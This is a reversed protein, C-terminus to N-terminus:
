NLIKVIIQAMDGRIYGKDGNVDIQYWTYGLTDKISSTVLFTEDEYVTLIIDGYPADRVYAKIAVVKIHMNKFIESNDFNSLSDNQEDDNKLINLDSKSENNSLDTQKLDEENNEIQEEDKRDVDKFYYSNKSIDSWMWLFKNRASVITSHTINFDNEYKIGQNPDTGDVSYYTKFIPCTSISVQASETYERIESDLPYIIPEPIHIILATLLSGLMSIIAIIKERKSDKDKIEICAKIGLFIAIILFAIPLISTLIFLAM